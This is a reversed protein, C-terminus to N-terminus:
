ERRRGDQNWGTHCWRCRDARDVGWFLSGWAKHYARPSHNVMPLVFYARIIQAPPRPAGLILVNLAPKPPWTGKAKHVGRGRPQAPAHSSCPRQVTAFQNGCINIVVSRASTEPCKQRWTAKNLSQNYCLFPGLGHWPKIRKLCHAREPIFLFISWM